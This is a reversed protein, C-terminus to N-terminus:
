LFGNRKPSDHAFRKTSLILTLSESSLQSTRTKGIDLMPYEGSGSDILRAVSALPKSAYLGRGMSKWIHSGNRFSTAVRNRNLYKAKIVRSFLKESNEAVFLGTSSLWDEVIKPFRKGSLLICVREILAM